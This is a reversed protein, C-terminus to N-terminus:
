TTPANIFFKNPQCQGEPDLVVNPHATWAPLDNEQFVALGYPNRRVQYTEGAQILGWQHTCLVEFTAPSM